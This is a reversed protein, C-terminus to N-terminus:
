PAPVLEAATYFVEDDAANVQWDIALSIPYGLTPHYAVEVEDAEALAHRAIDFLEGVSPVEALEAASLPSGDAMRTASTVTGARVRVLLTGDYRCFCSILLEFDYDSLRQREWLAEARAHRLALAPGLSGEVSCGSPLAAFGLALLTLRFRRM